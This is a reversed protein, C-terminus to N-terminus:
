RRPPGCLRLPAFFRFGLRGLALALLLSIQRCIQIRVLALQLPLEFYQLNLLLLEKHQHLLDKLAFPERALLLLFRM